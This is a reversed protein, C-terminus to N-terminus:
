DGNALKELTAIWEQQFEPHNARASALGKKYAQKAEDQRNLKVLIDGLVAQARVCDPALAVAQQAEDLARSLENTGSLKAANHAHALAGALPLDFQGNYVFVGHEIAAKPPLSKFQEYPNLSGPGMEYGSWTGASILVTGDVHSPAELQEGLWLSSIVPLMHCRVGYYNADVITAAFYAFWCDKVGHQDLYERTAPLQQAWDVNSDTLLKYTNSPGGWAENAYALYVPFTRLSTAAHWAFLVAIVAAWRLDRQMLKWAAAGCLIVLFPYIPLIHRVGINLGSMMAQGFYTIPPILLFLLERRAQLRGTAIVGIALGLLLLFPLTSKIVFAAPFYFWVGHPYIRGFLFSSSVNSINRVDTLGYLYAEPIAHWRAATTLIREEAPRLRHVYESLPPNMVMGKPRAEYRFGYSSWLVVLSIGSAVILATLLRASQWLRGPRRQTGRKAASQVPGLIMETTALLIVIPILLLASHKSAFALGLALGLAITRVVSPGKGFRYLAYITAFLFCSLAVDTTVVAGHALVNPEFVLVILALFAAGTGFMEQAALFVILALLLSFVAAALRTRLLIANANNSFIFETGDLFAENKFFRQEIRPTHLPMGLLPVTALLKVLPPHEPNMGYDKRTWYSYGAFIHCGEDWTQSESRISLGLQLALVLLLLSVGITRL